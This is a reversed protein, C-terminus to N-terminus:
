VKKGVTRGRRPPIDWNEKGDVASPWQSNLGYRKDLWQKIAPWYRRGFVPDIQPFGQKELSKVAVHYFQLRNPGFLERAIEDEPPFLPMEKMARPM